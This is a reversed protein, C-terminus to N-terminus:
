SAAQRDTLETFLDEETVKLEKAFKARIEAPPIWGTKEIKSIDSQPVGVRKALEVQTLEAKQRAAWFQPNM